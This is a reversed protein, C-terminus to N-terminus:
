RQAPPAPPTNTPPQNTPTSTPPTQGTGPDSPPPNNPCTSMSPDCPTPSPAAGPDSSNHCGASLLVVALLTTAIRM